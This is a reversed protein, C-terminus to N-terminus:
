GTQSKLCDKRETLANSDLDWYSHRSYVPKELEFVAGGKRWYRRGQTLEVMGGFALAVSNCSSSVARFACRAARFFSAASFVLAVLFNCCRRLRKSFARCRSRNWKCLFGLPCREHALVQEMCQSAAFCSLRASRSSSVWCDWTVSHFSRSEKWDTELQSKKVSISPTAESATFRDQLRQHQRCSHISFSM